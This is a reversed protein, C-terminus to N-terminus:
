VHSQLESTHEESRSAPPSALATGVSTASGRDTSASNAATSLEPESAASTQAAATRLDAGNSSVVDSIQSCVRATFRVPDNRQPRAANPEICPAPSPRITLM